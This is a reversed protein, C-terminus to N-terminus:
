DAVELRRAVTPRPTTCDVTLALPLRAAALWVSTSKLTEPCSAAIYVCTPSCTSAPFSSASSSGSWARVATVTASSSRREASSRRACTSLSPEALLVLDPGLVEADLRLGEVDLGLAVADTAAVGLAAAAAAGCSRRIELTPVGCAGAVEGATAVVGASCGADVVVVEGAGLGAWGVDRGCVVEPEGDEFVSCLGFPSESPSSRFVVPCPVDCLDALVPSALPEAAGEPSAELPEVAGESAAEM